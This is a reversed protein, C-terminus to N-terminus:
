MEGKIQQGRLDVCGRSREGQGLFGSLYNKYM